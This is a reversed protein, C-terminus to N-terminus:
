DPGGSLHGNRRNTYTSFLRLTSDANLHKVRTIENEYYKRQNILKIKNQTDINSIIQAYQARLSDEQQTLIALTDTYAIESAPIQVHTTKYTECAFYIAAIFVIAGAIIMILERIWAKM